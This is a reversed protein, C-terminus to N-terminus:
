NSRAIAAKFAPLISIQSRDGDYIKNKREEVKAEVFSKIRESDLTNM